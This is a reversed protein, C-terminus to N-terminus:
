QAGVATNAANGLREIYKPDFAQADVNVGLLAGTVPDLTASMATKESGTSAPLYAVPGYQAIPTTLQAQVAGDKYVKIQARGPVCYHIGKKSSGQVVTALEADTLQPVSTIKGRLTKGGKVTSVNTVFFPLKGQPSRHFEIEGSALYTFLSFEDSGSRGELHRPEVEFVVQGEAQIVSGFFKSAIDNMEAEIKELLQPTASSANQLILQRDTSLAKLKQAASLVRAPIEPPTNAKLSAAAATGAVKAAAEITTVIYDITKNHSSLSGSSIIGEPTFAFSTTRTSFPDKKLNAYYTRSPDKRGVPTISVAGTRLTTKDETIPEIGFLEKAYTSYPAEGTSEVEAHLTVSIELVTKPLSYIFGGNRADKVSALPSVEVTTACGSLVFALAPCILINKM